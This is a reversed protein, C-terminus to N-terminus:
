VTRLISNLVTFFPAIITFFHSGRVGQKAFLHLAKSHEALNKTFCNSLIFDKSIADAPRDETGTM